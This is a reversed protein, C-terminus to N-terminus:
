QYKDFCKNFDSLLSPFTVHLYVQTGPGMDLADKQINVPALFTEFLLQLPVHLVRKSLLFPKRFVSTLLRALIICRTRKQLVTVSTFMSLSSM